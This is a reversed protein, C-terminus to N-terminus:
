LLAYPYRPPILSVSGSEGDAGIVFSQFKLSGPIRAWDCEEATAERAGTGLRWSGKRVAFIAERSWESGSRAAGRGM